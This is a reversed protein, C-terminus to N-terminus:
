GICKKLELSRAKLESLWENPGVTACWAIHARLDKSWRPGVFGCKAKEAEVAQKLALKGYTSCNQQAFAPSVIATMAAFSLTVASARIIRNM